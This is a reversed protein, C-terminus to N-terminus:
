RASIEFRDIRLALRRRDGNRQVADPVFDQDSSLVVERPPGPPVDLELRFRGSASAGRRVDGSEIAIAVPPVLFRDPVEGEVTLRAGGAPVNIMSRARRSAWRFPRGDETAEPYHWGDGRVLLPDDARGYALGRLAFPAGSASGNRATTFVLPRYGAQDSPPVTYAALWPVGCSRGDLRHGALTLEGEWEAARPDRPEAAVMLIGTDPISLLYATRVPEAAGDPRAMEISLGWGPGAFWLPRRLEVLDVSSPREGSLLMEAARPWAWQGRLVRAGPDVAELDTRRPEALFLVPRDDGAVWADELAAVERRTPLQLLPIRSPALAFYRSFMYHGSLVYGGAGGIRGAERLAAYAPSDAAAYAVVGPLAVAGTAAAGAALLAIFASDARRGAARALADMGLVALLALLPVYPMAYRQTHAQQFLAHAVLYPAFALVALRMSAGRRWAAIAGLAGLAALAIGLWEAGWPRFLVHRAARVGRNLTWTLVIPEVDAADAATGRFAHWYAAPGGSEIVTPAAWALGAAVFAALAAPRRQAGPRTMAYLWLPVTVALTQVRVGAALGCLLSCAVLGRGTVIAGLLLAQAGMAFLLGVSDSMPRLGNIWVVPNLLTLATAAAAIRPRAGLRRFLFFLPLPLAAQAAASLFALARASTQPTAGAAAAFLKALAVYVAYGPPHPQHRAPDFDGVALAFNVADIDDLGSALFPVRTVLVAAACL